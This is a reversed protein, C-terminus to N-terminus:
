LSSRVRNENITHMLMQMSDDRVDKLAEVLLTEEDQRSLSLLNQMNPADKSWLAEKLLRGRLHEEIYKELSAHRTAPIIPIRNEDQPLGYYELYISGEKFNAQIKNGQMDISYPSQKVNRNVCCDTCGERLVNRGLKVYQPNKYYVEVEGAGDNYYHKEMVCMGGPQACSEEATCEEEPYIGGLKETWIYSSMLHDKSGKTIKYMDKECYVALSLQGYDDPLNGRYNEITSVHEKLQMISAGFTKLALFIWRYMSARDILHPNDKFFTSSEIESIISEATTYGEM